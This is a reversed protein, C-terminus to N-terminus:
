RRRFLRLKFAPHKGARVADQAVFGRGAPLEEEAGLLMLTGGNALLMGAADFLDQDPKVARVTVLQATGINEPKRALEEFRANEVRAHPLDLGRVVERLFAAKRAKSDVMTLRTRPRMLKLPVAPSGGGSGLDFWICPGTPVLPAAALPEFLLRDLTAETPNELGLATLNIRANWRRLLLFYRELPEFVAAPVDLDLRAARAQLQTRLDKPVTPIRSRPSPIQSASGGSM